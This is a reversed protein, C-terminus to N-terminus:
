KSEASGPKTTPKTRVRPSAGSSSTASESTPPTGHGSGNSTNAQGSNSVQAKEALSGLQQLLRQSFDELAPQLAKALAEMNDPTIREDLWDITLDPKARKMGAYLFAALVVFGQTDDKADWVWSGGYPIFPINLDAQARAFDFRSFQLPYRVGELEVFHQKRLPNDM